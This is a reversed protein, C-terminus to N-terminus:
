PWSSACPKRRKTIQGVATEQAVRALKQAPLQLNFVRIANGGLINRKLRSSRVAGREGVKLNDEYGFRPCVLHIEHESFKQRVWIRDPGIVDAVKHVLLGECDPRDQHLCLNEDADFEGQWRSIGIESGAHRVIRCEGDACQAIKAVFIESM